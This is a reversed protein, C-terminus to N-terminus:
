AGLPEITASPSVHAYPPVGILDHLLIQSERPVRARRAIPNGHFVIELMGLVVITDQIRVSVGMPGALHDPVVDVAAAHLDGAVPDVELGALLRLGRGTRM